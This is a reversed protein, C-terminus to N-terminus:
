NKAKTGAHKGHFLVKLIFELLVLFIFYYILTKSMALTQGVVGGLMEITPPTIDLLFVALLAFPILKAIDRSLEESHYATIRITALTAMSIMFVQGILLVESLITLLMSIVLFWIFAIIPFLFIYELTYALVKHPSKEGGESLRFINKRAIFKYLRFVFIAYIVMGIVFYILGYLTDWAELPSLQPLLSLIDVM